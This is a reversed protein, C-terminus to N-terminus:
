LDYLTPDRGAPPRTAPRKGSSGPLVFPDDMELADGLEAEIADPDEGAELRGIAEEINGNFGMGTLESFRRMLQAAARPDDDRMGEAEGALANVARELKQDDVPLEGGATDDDSEHTVAFLSVERSLQVTQCRPCLPRSTTDVRRAYFNFLM